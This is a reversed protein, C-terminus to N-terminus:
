NTEFLLRFRVISFDLRKLDRGKNEKAIYRLLADM